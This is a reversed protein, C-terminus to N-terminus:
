TRPYEAVSEHAWILDFYRKLGAVFSGNETVAAQRIDNPVDNEEVLLVARGSDYAMSPDALTGRWPLKGTSFRIEVGPHETALRDVITAQVDRKEPASRDSAPVHEPHLMLVRVDIDRDLADALASAVADLYEFSTTIVDVEREAARYLRRTEAESPEGVDLVSFLEGTSTDETAHEYRPGFEALFEERSAEIEERFQEHARRRNEVARDLLEAPSRSRYEKPRGPIVEVFGRDALADLVGYIRAKPIDTAEALTPASTRGLGLLASLAREEYETLGIRDLTGTPDPTTM